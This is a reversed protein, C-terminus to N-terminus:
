LMTEKSHQRIAQSALLKAELPSHGKEIFQAVYISFQAEIRKNIQEANDKSVHFIQCAHAIDESSANRHIISISEAITKM